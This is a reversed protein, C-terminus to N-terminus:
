WRRWGCWPGRSRSTRCWSPSSPSRRWVALSPSSRVEGLPLARLGAALGRAAPVPEHLLLEPRRPGPRRRLRRVRPALEGARRHAADRDAVADLRPQGGHLLPHLGLRDEGPQGRVGQVRPEGPQAQVAREGGRDGGPRRLAPLGADRAARLRHRPHLRRHRDDAADRPGQRGLWGGV